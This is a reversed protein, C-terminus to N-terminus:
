NLLLSYNIVKSARNSHFRALQRENAVDLLSLESVPVEMGVKYDAHNKNIKATLVEGSPSLVFFRFSRGKGLLDFKEIKVTDPAPTTASAKKARNEKQAKTAKAKAM